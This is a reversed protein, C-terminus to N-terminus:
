DKPPFTLFVYWCNEIPHQVYFVQKTQSSIFFPDDQVSGKSLCRKLNVMMFVLEDVKMGNKMHLDVLSVGCLLLEVNNNRSDSLFINDDLM